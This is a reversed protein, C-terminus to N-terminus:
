MGTVPLKKIQKVEKKAKDIEITPKEEKKNNITVMMEQNLETEVEILEEYKEYGDITNKERIYYKGPILNEIVIKGNEDTKLNSYVVNKNEDLLEFEVDKLRQKTDVDQKIIIIKTENKIYEDSAKGMGDEYTAATLAYDQYSSNPAKGYLVAKTKIPAQVEIYFSGKEKAQKIPVLIKFNENGKFEQKEVNNVDTLKLGEIPKGDDGTIKINYSDLQMGATVSYTKSIYSKEKEDQKWEDVNKNVSIVNSIQNETSNNADNVIKYMANLTRQGAEGIPEYDSLQNGHIYCYIAQKTATFAEERNAM